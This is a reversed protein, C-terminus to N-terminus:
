LHRQVVQAWVEQGAPVLMATWDGTGLDERLADEINRARAQELTENAEFKM